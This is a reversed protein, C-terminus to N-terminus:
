HDFYVTGSFLKGDLMLAWEVTRFAAIGAAPTCSRGEGKASLVTHRGSRLALEYHAERNWRFVLTDAPGLTVTRRDPFVMKVDMVMRDGLVPSNVSAAHRWEGYEGSFLYIYLGGALLISAAISAFAWLRLRAGAAQRAPPTRRANAAPAAEEDAVLRALRRVSDVHSRCAECAELHQQFLTEDSATMRNLLYRGARSQSCPNLSQEKM